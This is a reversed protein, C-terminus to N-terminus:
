SPRQTRSRLRSTPCRLVQLCLYRMFKICAASVCHQWDDFWGACSCAHRPLVPFPMSHRLKGYLGVFGLVHRVCVGPKAQLFLAICGAVEPSAMSTGSDIHYSGLPM